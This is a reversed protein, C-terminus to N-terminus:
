SGVAARRGDFRHGADRSSTVQGPRTAHSGHPGHLLRTMEKKEDPEDEEHFGRQGRRRVSLAMGSVTLPSTRLRRRRGHSDTHFREVGRAAHRWAPLEADRCAISGGAALGEDVELAVRAVRDLALCKRKWWALSRGGPRIERPHSTAM